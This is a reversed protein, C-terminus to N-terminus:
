IPPSTLMRFWSATVSRVYSNEGAPPLGQLGAPDMGFAWLPSPSSPPARSPGDQGYDEWRHVSPDANRLALEPTSRSFLTRSGVIIHPNQRRASLSKIHGPPPLVPSSVLLLFSLFSRNFSYRALCFSPSLETQLLVRM